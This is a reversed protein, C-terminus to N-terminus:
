APGRQGPVRSALRGVPELSGHLTTITQSLEDISSLTEEMLGALREVGADLRKMVDPLEALQKQVDVLVPMSQEITAMRGDMPKLVAAADAVRELSRSVEELQATHREMENTSRAISPLHDVVAVLDVPLTLLRVVTGIGYMRGDQRRRPESPLVPSVPISDATDLATILSGSREAKKRDRDRSPQVRKPEGPMKPYDPPYPMDGEGESEDREYMELLPELSHHVDDITAFRDGVEAFRAPM